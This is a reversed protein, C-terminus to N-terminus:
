FVRAAVLIWLIYKDPDQSFEPRAIDLLTVRDQESDLRREVRTLPCGEVNLLHVAGGIYVPFRVESGAIKSVGLQIVLSEEAEEFYLTANLDCLLAMAKQNATFLPTRLQFTRCSRALQLCEAKGRFFGHVATITCREVTQFHQDVERKSKALQEVVERARTELEDRQAKVALLAAKQKEEFRKKADELQTYEVFLREQGLQVIRDRERQLKRIEALLKDRRTEEIQEDCPHGPLETKLMTLKCKPCQASNQRIRCKVIHRKLDALTPKETCGEVPCDVQTEGLIGNQLVADVPKSRNKCFPCQYVRSGKQLMEKYDAKCFTAPCNACKVSKFRLPGFCIKCKLLDIMKRKATSDIEDDSSASAETHQRKSMAFFQSPRTAPFTFELLRM